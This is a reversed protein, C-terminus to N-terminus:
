YTRVRIKKNCSTCITELPLIDTEVISHCYPCEIAYKGCTRCRRIKKAKKQGKFFLSIRLMMEEIAYVNTDWLSIRIKLPIKEFRCIHNKM